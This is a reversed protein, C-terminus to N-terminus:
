TLDYPAVVDREFFGFDGFAQLFRYVLPERGHFLIYFKNEEIKTNLIYQQENTIINRNKTIFINYSSM